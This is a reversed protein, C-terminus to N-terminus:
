GPRLCLLRGPQVLIARPPLSCQMPGASQWATHPPAPSHTSTPPCALSPLLRAGHWRARHFLGTLCYTQARAVPTMTLKDKKVQFLVRENVKERRQNTIAVIHEKRCALNQVVPTHVVVWVLGQHQDSCAIVAFHLEPVRAVQRARHLDESAVTVPHPTGLEVRVM